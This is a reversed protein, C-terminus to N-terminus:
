LLYSPSRGKEGVGSVPCIRRTGLGVGHVLPGQLAPTFLQAKLLLCVPKSRFELEAAESSIRGQLM